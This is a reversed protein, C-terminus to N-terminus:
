MKLFMTTPDAMKAKTIPTQVYVTWRIATLSTPIALLATENVIVATPCSFNSSTMTGSVGSCGGFVGLTTNFPLLHYGPDPSVVKSALLSATAMDYLESNRRFCEHRKPHVHEQVHPM